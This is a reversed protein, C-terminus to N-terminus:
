RDRAGAEFTPARAISEPLAVDPGVPQEGARRRPARRGDFRSRL